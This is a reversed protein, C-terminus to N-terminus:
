APSWAQQAARSRPSHFFARVAPDTSAALETMTGAALVRADGLLVVRDAVRWLSAMDHTVMVVTLGLSRKLHLILDDLADASLPDLGSAPEDLFLLEPDLAIARALGARKTMGGSLQGPYLGGAEPALGTLGIKLAALATVFAPSLRTHEHLPVAVNEAVTRDSFLAGHQFLVGIHRRLAMSQRESLAYADCGLVMVQGASPRQLLAMERMLTTKGSGSCGVIAFIEGRRVQLSIDEHVRRRGFDTTVQRVEVVVEGIV